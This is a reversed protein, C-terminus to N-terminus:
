NSNKAIYISKNIGFNLGESSLEEKYSQNFSEFSDILDDCLSSPHIIWSGIFNPNISSKELSLRKM